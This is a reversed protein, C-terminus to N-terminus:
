SSMEGVYLYKLICFVLIYNSMEGVYLYQLPHFM